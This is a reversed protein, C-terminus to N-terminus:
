KVLYGDAGGELGRTRDESSSAVGSLHLLPISATAPDARIRRCVEFGSLDPLGVDLLVLDPMERALRLAEGGTPAEWVDFGAHRLVEATSGRTVDSDDVFLIAAPSRTPMAISKRRVPRCRRPHPDFPRPRRSAKSWPATM